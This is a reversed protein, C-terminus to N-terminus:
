RREDDESGEDHETRRDATVEEIFEFGAPASFRPISDMEAMTASTILRGHRDTRMIIMSRLTEKPIPLEHLTTKGEQYFPTERMDYWYWTSPKLKM